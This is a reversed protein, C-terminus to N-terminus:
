KDGIEVAPFIILGRVATTTLPLHVRDDTPRAV